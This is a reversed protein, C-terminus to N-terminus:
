WLLKSPDNSCYFSAACGTCSFLIGSILLAPVCLVIAAICPGGMSFGCRSNMSGGVIGLILGVAALLAAIINMIFGVLYLWSFVLALSSVVVSLMACIVGVIGLKSGPGKGPSKQKGPVTDWVADPTVTEYPTNTQQSDGYEPTNGNSLDYVPNVNPNVGGQPRNNYPDRQNNM